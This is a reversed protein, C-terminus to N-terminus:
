QNFMQVLLIDKVKNSAGRGKEERGVCLNGGERGRRNKGCREERESKNWGIRQRKGGM